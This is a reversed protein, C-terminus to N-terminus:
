PSLRDKVLRAIRSGDAAGGAAQKVAAIVQGMNKLGPEDVKQIETDILQSLEEDSLQAPLYTEILAKEALEQQAREDDGGKKYLDASEQRKKAEKALVELIAPDSLGQERQDKALEEYLISSKLGRLQTARTRDGALLAVKLDQEIQEKLTM